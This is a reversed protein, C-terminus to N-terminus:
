ILELLEEVRSEFPYLQKLKYLRKKAAIYRGEEIEILAMNINAYYDNNDMLLIEKLIPLATSFEKDIIHQYAQTQLEIYDSEQRDVEAIIEQQEYVEEEAIVNNNLEHIEEVTNHKLEYIGDEQDSSFIDSSDLYAQAATNEFVYVNSGVIDGKIADVKEELIKENFGYEVSESQSLEEISSIDFEDLVAIEEDLSTSNVSDEYFEMAANHLSSDVYQEVYSNSFFESYIIYLFSIVGLAMLFFLISNGLNLNFKNVRYLGNKKGQFDVAHQNNKDSFYTEVNQLAEHILSM